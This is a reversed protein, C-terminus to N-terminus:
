SGCGISKWIRQLIEVMEGGPRPADKTTLTPAATQAISTASTLGGSRGSLEELRV